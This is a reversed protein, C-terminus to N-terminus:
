QSPVGNYKQYWIWEFKLHWLSVAPQTHLCSEFVSIYRIMKLCSSLRRGASPIWSGTGWRDSDMPFDWTSHLKPLPKVRDQRKNTLSLIKEFLELYHNRKRCEKMSNINSMELLTWASNPAHLMTHWHNCMMFHIRDPDSACDIWQHPFTGIIDIPKLNTKLKFCCEFSEAVVGRSKFLDLNLNQDTIWTYIWPLELSTENYAHLFRWHFQLWFVTRLM